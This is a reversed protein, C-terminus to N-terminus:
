NGVQFVVTCEEPHAVCETMATATPERNVACTVFALGLYSMLCRNLCTIVDLSPQLTPCPLSTQGSSVSQWGTSPVLFKDETISKPNM